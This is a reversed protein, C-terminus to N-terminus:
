GIRSDPKSQEKWEVKYEKRKIKLDLPTSLYAVDERVEIDYKFFGTPASHYSDGVIAASLKVARRMVKEIFATKGEGKPQKLRMLDPPLRLTVHKRKDEPDKRRNDKKEKKGSGFGVYQGSGIQEVDVSKKDILNKEPL